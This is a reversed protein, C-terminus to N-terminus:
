LPVIGGCPGFPPGPLPLTSSTVSNPMISEGVTLQTAVSSKSPASAYPDTIASKEVLIVAVDAAISRHPNPSSNPTITVLSEPVLESLIM